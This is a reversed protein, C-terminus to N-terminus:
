MLDAARERQIKNELCSPSLIEEQPFLQDDQTIFQFHLKRFDTQTRDM